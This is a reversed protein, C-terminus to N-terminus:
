DPFSGGDSPDSGRAALPAGFSARARFEGSGARCHGGAPAFVRIAVLLFDHFTLRGDGHGLLGGQRALAGREPKEELSRRDRDGYCPKPENARSWEKMYVPHMCESARGSPM